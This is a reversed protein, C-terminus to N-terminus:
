IVFAPAVAEDYVHWEGAVCWWSAVRRESCPLSRASSTPSRFPRLVLTIAAPFLRTFCRQRHTGLMAAPRHLKGGSSSTFIVECTPEGTSAHGRGLRLDDTKCEDSSAEIRTLEGWRLAACIRRGDSGGSAIAAKTSRLRGASTCAAGRCFRPPPSATLIM